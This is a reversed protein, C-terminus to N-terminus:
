WFNKELDSEVFRCAAGLSLLIDDTLPIPYQIPQTSNNLDRFDSYLQLIDGPGPLIVVSSNWDLM